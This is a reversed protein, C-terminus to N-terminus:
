RAQGPRTVLPTTPVTPTSGAPERSVAFYGLGGLDKGGSGVTYVSPGQATVAFGGIPVPHADTPSTM